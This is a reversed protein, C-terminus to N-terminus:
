SAYQVQRDCTKRFTSPTLGTVKKFCNAFYQSSSFGCDMAVNLINTKPNEALKLCAEEIRLSLLYQMPTM